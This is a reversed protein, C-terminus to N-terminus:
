GCNPTTCAYTVAMQSGPLPKTWTVTVKVMVMAPRNGVVTGNLYQPVGTVVWSRTFTGNADGVATLPNNPDNHTGLTLDAPVVNTVPVTLRIQEIKGQVLATAAATTRSGNSLKINTAVSTSFAGAVAAFLSFAFIVEILSLGRESSLRAM